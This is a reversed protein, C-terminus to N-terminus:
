PSGYTGGEETELFALDEPCVDAKGNPPNSGPITNGSGAVSSSIPQDVEYCGSGHLAIGYNGNGWVSSDVLSLAADGSLHIGDDGNGSVVVRTATAEGGSVWLGNWGNDAITCDSLIATSSSAFWVGGLNDSVTSDFLALSASERLHIAYWFRNDTVTCEHVSVAATDRATIASDGNEYITCQTLSVVASGKVLVGSACLLGGDDLDICSGVAHGIVLNELTVAPTQSEFVSSVWLVPTAELTGRIESGAGEASGRLTISKGIRINEDWRGEKLCIVAGDPAADIAAQVSDGPELEVDCTPTEEALATCSIAVVLFACLLIARSGKVIEAM